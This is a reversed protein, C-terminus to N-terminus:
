LLGAQRAMRDLTEIAQMGAQPIVLSFDNVFTQIHATLVAADMEQAHERVYPLTQEPHARADEISARIAGDIKEIL